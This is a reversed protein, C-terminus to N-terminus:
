VTVDGACTGSLPVAPDDWAPGDHSGEGTEVLFLARVLSLSSLSTVSLRSDDGATSVGVLTLLSLNVNVGGFGAPLSLAVGAGFGVAFRLRVGFGLYLGFVFGFGLFGFGFGSGFEVGSDFGLRKVVGFVGGTVGVLLCFQERLAFDSELVVSVAVAVPSVV